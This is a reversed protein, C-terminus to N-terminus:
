SLLLYRRDGPLGFRSEKARMLASGFKYYHLLGHASWGMQEHGTLRQCWETALKSDFGNITLLFVNVLILILVSFLFEM